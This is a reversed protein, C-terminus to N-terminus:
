NPFTQGIGVARYLPKKACSLNEFVSCSELREMNGLLWIGKQLVQKM